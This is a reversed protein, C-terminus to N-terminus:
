CAASAPARHRQHLTELETRIRLRVERIHRVLDRRSIVGVLTNDAAVVPL